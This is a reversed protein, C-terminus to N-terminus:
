GLRAERGQRAKEPTTAEGRGSAAPRTSSAKGPRANFWTFARRVRARRGRGEARGTTTTCSSSIPSGGEGSTTEEKLLATECTGTPVTPACPPSASPEMDGCVLFPANTWKKVYLEDYLQKEIIVNVDLGTGPPKTPAPACTSGTTPKGQGHQGHPPDVSIYTPARHWTWRHPLLRRLQVALESAGGWQVYVKPRTITEMWSMARVPSVM